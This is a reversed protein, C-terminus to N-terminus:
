CEFSATPWDGVEALQMGVGVGPQPVQTWALDGSGSVCGKTSDEEGAGNKAGVPLRVLVPCAWRLV